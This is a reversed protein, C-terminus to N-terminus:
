VLRVHDLVAEEVVFIRTRGYPSPGFAEGYRVGGLDRMRGRVQAARAAEYPRVARVRASGRDHARLSVCGVEPSAGM